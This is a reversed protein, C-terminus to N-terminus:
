QLTNAIYSMSSFEANRDYLRAYQNTLTESAIPTTKTTSIESLVRGLFPACM